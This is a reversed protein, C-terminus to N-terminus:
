GEEFMQADRNKKAHLADLFRGNMAIYLGPPLMMAGALAFGVNFVADTAKLRAPQMAGVFVVTKDTIGELAAATTTMTDTGHTILIGKRESVEVATRITSRDQDTLELSDKRMLETIRVDSQVNAEALINGVANDGIKFESLADFYVKDITGGTTFIDVRRM